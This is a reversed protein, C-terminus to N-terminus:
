SFLGTNSTFDASLDSISSETNAPCKGSILDDEKQIQILINEWITTDGSSWMGFYNLASFLQIAAEQGSAASLAKAVQIKQLIAFRAKIPHKSTAAQYWEIYRQSAERILQIHQENLPLDKADELIEFLQNIDEPTPLAGKRLRVAATLFIGAVLQNGVEAAADALETLATHFTPAPPPPPVDAAPNPLCRM